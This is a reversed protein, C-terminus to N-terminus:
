TEFFAAEIEEPRAQIFFEQAMLDLMEPKLLNKFPSHYTLQTRHCALSVIKVQAYASVDMKHTIQRDMENPNENLSTIMQEVGTTDLRLTQMRERISKFWMQPLVSYYLRRPQWPEGSDAFESPSGALDFAWTTCRSIIVHDPHGYIGYPEFTIVIQPHLERILRTIKGTVQGPDAHFLSNNLGNEPTGAMGSDRYGFYHVEEIGLVDCAAKLEIERVAGLTDPTALSSDAIEGAEGRTAVALVVRWGLDVAMALTGSCVSEDDPHAFVALITPPM